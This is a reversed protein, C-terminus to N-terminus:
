AGAKKSKGEQEEKRLQNEYCEAHMEESTGPVIVFDDENPDVSHQCGNCIQFQPM